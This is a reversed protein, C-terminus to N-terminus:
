NGRFPVTRRRGGMDTAHRGTAWRAWLSAVNWRACAEELGAGCAQSCPVSRSVWRWGRRASHHVTGVRGRVLDVAGESNVTPERGFWRAVSLMMRLGASPGGCRGLVGGGSGLRMWELGGYDSDVAATYFGRSV